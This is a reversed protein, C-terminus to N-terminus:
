CLFNMLKDHSSQRWDVVNNQESPAQGEGSVLVDLVHVEFGHLLGEHRGQPYEAHVPDSSEKTM